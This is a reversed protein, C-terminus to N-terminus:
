ESKYNMNILKYANKSNKTKLMIIYDSDYNFTRECFVNLYVFSQIEAM